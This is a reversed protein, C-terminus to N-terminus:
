SLDMESESPDMASVIRRAGPWKGMELLEAVTQVLMDRVRVAAVPLGFQRPEFLAARREIVPDVLPVVVMEEVRKAVRANVALMVTDALGAQVASLMTALGTVDAVVQLQMDARLAERELLRRIGNPQPPLILPRLMVERCPISRLCSYIRRMQPDASVFHLQEAILPTRHFGRLQDTDFLIAYDLRGRALQEGLMGSLGEVITMRVLPLERRVAELLPLALVAATSNPIGVMVEGRVERGVQKVEDAAAHVQKVIARAQRYFQEGASTLSIGHKHRVLLEAGVEEELRAVQHSVASQVVHLKRAASSISREDAVAVFYRLQRLEM